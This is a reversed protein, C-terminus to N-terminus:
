DCVDFVDWAIVKGNSKVARGYIEFEKQIHQTM